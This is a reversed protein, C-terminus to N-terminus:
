NFYYTKLIDSILEKTVPKNVLKKMGVEESKKITEDSSNATVAVIQCSRDLLLIQKTAEFGDLFPMQIDMFILKYARNAKLNDKVKQVAVLGNEAEDANLKFGVKLINKLAMINFPIDDVVLIDVNSASKIQHSISVKWREFVVKSHKQPPHCTNFERM